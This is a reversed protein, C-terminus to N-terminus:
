DHFGEEELKRRLQWILACQKESPIKLPIQSAIRLLELEKSTVLGRQIAWERMRGWKAGPTELVSIQKEIGRDMEQVDKASRESNVVSKVDILQNNIGDIFPINASRVRDWCAQLKAWETVNQRPRDSDTLIEFINESILSLQALLEPASKQNEWIAKLNLRYGLKQQSIMDHLKALSYTVINARYGGQYWPQESVLSETERFLIAIAVLNRFYQENFQSENETWSKAISDAFILFNKQAGLSVKHPLGRWSNEFKAIDTKTILQSKPNQALFQKKQSASSKAQENTFQGRAREYFWHTGNQRGPAPPAFLRRSLEELRIHFPHNAFFDADSVKNQSNACRAIEPILEGAREPSLVALKMQVSIKTLDAGDKRKAFALSATTQGGNVIQLNTAATILRSSGHSRLEIHEATAAIGNNFAFFMEPKSYITQQIKANVKGKTTLFSRVNGELLRSGYTDYIDALVQGPIMCLYSQYDGGSGGAELSLLGDCGFQTFDISIDDRGTTSQFSTHFRAIDWIHFDTPVGDIEDLPWDKVRTNLQGDSALYLRFRSINPRWAILDTALGYGQQSEEISGDTLRGSLAEEVYSRLMGFLRRSEVVGFTPIVDDNSFESILLALSGDTEDWCYGDVQLKRGKTGTGEFRCVMFDSFEEADTLRSGIEDVFAARLFDRNVEASTRVTELLDQRFEIIDM